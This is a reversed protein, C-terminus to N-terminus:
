NNIVQEMDSHNADVFFSLFSVYKTTTADISADHGLNFAIISLCNITSGMSPPPPALSMFHMAFRLTWRPVKEGRLYTSRVLFQIGTAMSDETPRPKYDRWDLWSHDQDPYLVNHIAGMIYYFPSGELDATTPFAKIYHHSISTLVAPTPEVLALHILVTISCFDLAPIVLEQQGTAVEKKKIMGNRKIYSTIISLGHAILPTQDIGLFTLIALYKLGLTHFHIDPSTQLVWSICQLEMQIQSTPEKTQTLLATASDVLSQVVALGLHISDVAFARALMFPLFVIHMTTSGLPFGLRSLPGWETVLTGYFTSHKKLASFSSQVIHLIHRLTRAGPTQYPCSHSVAGAVVIFIYFLVGLSTMTLTVFSITPDIKWLYLSLACGLLLLSIQLMLPMSEMTYVFKWAVIGSLRHQREHSYDDMARWMGTSTYQNLWQKGLTALFAALLSTALSAYLMVQVQVITPPPGSWQPITPVDDGFTTNDMKHILVRLLAATEENPDPQLQSHVQIIFASTM